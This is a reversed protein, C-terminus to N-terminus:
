NGSSELRGDCFGAHTGAERRLYEVLVAWERLGRLDLCRGLVLCWGVEGVCGGCPDALLGFGMWTGAVLLAPRGWWAGSLFGPFGLLVLVAPLMDMAPIGSTCAEFILPCNFCKLVLISLIGNPENSSNDAERVSLTYCEPLQGTCSPPTTAHGVHMRESERGCECDPKEVQECLTFSYIHSLNSESMSCKFGKKKM